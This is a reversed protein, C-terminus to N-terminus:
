GQGHATPLLGRRATACSPARERAPRLHLPAWSRAAENEGEGVGHHLSSGCAARRLSDSSFFLPSNRLPPPGPYNGDTNRQQDQPASRLAGRSLSSPSRGNNPPVSRNRRLPSERYLVRRSPPGEARPFRGAAFVFSVFSCQLRLYTRSAAPPQQGTGNACISPSHHLWLPSGQGHPCPRSPAM